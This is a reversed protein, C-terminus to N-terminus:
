PKRDPRYPSGHHLHRIIRPGDNENADLVWGSAQAENAGCTECKSARVLQEVTMAHHGRALDRLSRPSLVVDRGCARCWLKVSENAAAVALLRRGVLEPLVDLADFTGPYQPPPRLFSSMPGRVSSVRRVEVVVPASASDVLLINKYQEGIWLRNDTPAPVGLGALRTVISLEDVVLASMGFM